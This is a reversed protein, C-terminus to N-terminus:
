NILGCKKDVQFEKKAHYKEHDIKTRGLHLKKKEDVKHRLDELENLQQNRKADPHSPPTKLPKMNEMIDKTVDEIVPEKDKRTVSHFLTAELPNM